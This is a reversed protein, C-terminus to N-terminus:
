PGSKVFVRIATEGQKIIYSANVESFHILCCGLVNDCALRKLCVFQNM